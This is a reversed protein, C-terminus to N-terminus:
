LNLWSDPLNCCDTIPQFCLSQLRYSSWRAVIISMRDSFLLFSYGFDTVSSTFSSSYLDTCPTEQKIFLMGINIQFYIHLFLFILSRLFYYYYYVRLNLNHKLFRPSVATICLILHKYSHAVSPRIPM